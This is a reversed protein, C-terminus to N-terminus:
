TRSRCATPTDDIWVRLSTWAATDNSNLTVLQRDATDLSNLAILGDAYPGTGAARNFFYESLTESVDDIVGVVGADTRDMVLIGDTNVAPVTGTSITNPAVWGTQEKAGDHDIDFFVARDKYSTLRVGDGNLDLVLPDITVPPVDAFTGTTAAAGHAADAATVADWVLEASADTQALRATTGTLANHAPQDDDGVFAGMLEDARDEAHNVVQASLSAEDTIRGQDVATTNNPDTPTSQTAFTDDWTNDVTLTNNVGGTTENAPSAPDTSGLIAAVAAAGESGEVKAISAGLHELRQQLPEDSLPAGNRTIGTLTPDEDHVAVYSYNFDYRDAGIFLSVSANSDGNRSVDYVTISRLVGINQTDYIQRTLRTVGSFAADQLTEVFIDVRTHGVEDTFAVHDISVQPFLPDANITVAVLGDLPGSTSHPDAASTLPETVATRQAPTVYSHDGLAQGLSTANDFHDEGGAVGQGLGPRWTGGSAVAAEYRTLITARGLNGYTIYLGDMEVQTLRALYAANAHGDIFTQAEKIMLGWFIPTAASRVDILDFMLARFNGNYQKIDLPDSNAFQGNYDRLLDIATSFKINAQGLDILAPNLLKDGLDARGGAADFESAARAFNEIMLQSGFVDTSFVASAYADSGQQIGRNQIFSNHEEAMAGAIAAVPVGLTLAVAEIAARQAAVYDFAEQVYTTM